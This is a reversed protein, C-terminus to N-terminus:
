GSSWSSQSLQRVSRPCRWARPSRALHVVCRVRKGADSCTDRVECGLDSATGERSLMIRTCEGGETICGCFDEAGSCDAFTAATRCNLVGICFKESCRGQEAYPATCDEPDGCIESEPCGRDGQCMWGPQCSLGTPVVCKGNACIRESGLQCCDSTRTCLGDNNVCCKGAECALNGTLCCFKDTGNCTRGLKGCCALGM